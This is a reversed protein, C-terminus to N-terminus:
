THWSVYRRFSDAQSATESLRPLPLPVNRVDDAQSQLGALKEPSVIPM